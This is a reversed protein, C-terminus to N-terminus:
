LFFYLIFFSQFSVQLILPLLPLILERVEEHHTLLCVTKVVNHPIQGTEFNLYQEIKTIIKTLQSPSVHYCIFNVLSQSDNV